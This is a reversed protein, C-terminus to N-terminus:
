SSEPKFKVVLCSRWLLLKSLGLHETDNPFARFCYWPDISAYYICSNPLQQYNYQCSIVLWQSPPEVYVRRTWCNIIGSQVRKVLARKTFVRYSCILNRLILLVFFSVVFIGSCFSMVSALMRGNCHQDRNIKASSYWKREKTSFGLGIIKRQIFHLCSPWM